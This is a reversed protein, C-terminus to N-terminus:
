ILQRVLTPLFHKLFVCNSNSVTNLHPISPTSPCSMSRQPEGPGSRASIDRTLCCKRSPCAHIQFIQLAQRVLPRKCLIVKMGTARHEPKRERQERLKYTTLKRSTRSTLQIKTRLSQQATRSSWGSLISTTFHRKGRTEIPGDAAVARPREPVQALPAPVGPVSWLSNISKFGFCDCLKSLISRRGTNVYVSFGM